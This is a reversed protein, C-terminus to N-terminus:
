KLRCLLSELKMKQGVFDFDGTLNNVNVTKMRGNLTKIPKLANGAVYYACIGGLLVIVILIIISGMYMEKAATTMVSRVAIEVPAVDFSPATSAPTLTLTEAPTLTAMTTYSGDLPITAIKLMSDTARPMVYSTNLNTFLVLAISCVSMVGITLLTIRWRLTVEIRKM